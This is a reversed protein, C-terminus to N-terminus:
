MLKSTYEVASAERIAASIRVACSCMFVVPPLLLRSRKFVPADRDQSSEHFQPAAPLASPIRREAPLQAPIRPQEAGQHLREAPPRGRAGLGAGGGLRVLLAPAGLPRRFFFFCVLGVMKMVTRLTMLIAAM